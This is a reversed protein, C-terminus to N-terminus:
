GAPEFSFSLLLCDEKTLPIRLWGVNNTGSTTTTFDLEYSIYDQSSKQYVLAKAKGSFTQGSGSTSFVITNCLVGVIQKGDKDTVSSATGTGNTSIGSLSFSFSSAPTNTYALNHFSFWAGTESNIMGRAYSPTGGNYLEFGQITTTKSIVTGNLAQYKLAM